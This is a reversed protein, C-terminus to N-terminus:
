LVDTDIAGRPALDGCGRGAHPGQSRAGVRLEVPTGERLGRPGVSLGGAAMCVSFVLLSPATGRPAGPWDRGGAEPKTHLSQYCDLGSISGLITDQRSLSGGAVSEEAPEATEKGLPILSGNDWNLSNSCRTTGIM